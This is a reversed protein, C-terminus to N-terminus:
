VATDSAARRQQLRAVVADIRARDELFEPPAEGRMSQALQPQRDIIAGFRGAIEITQQRAKSYAQPLLVSQAELAKETQQVVWEALEDLEKILNECSSRMWLRWTATSAMSEPESLTTTAATNKINESAVGAVSASGKHMFTLTRGPHAYSAHGEQAYSRARGSMEGSRVGSVFAQRLGNLESLQPRVECRCETVAEDLEMLCDQVLEPDWDAMAQAVHDIHQSIEDGIDYINQTLERVRLTANYHM